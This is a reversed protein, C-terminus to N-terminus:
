EHVWTATRNPQQAPRQGPRSRGGGTPGDPIYEASAKKTKFLKGFDLGGGPPTEPSKQQAPTKRRWNSLDAASEEKAVERAKLLFQKRVADDSRIKTCIEKAEADGAKVREYLSTYAEDLKRQEAETLSAEIEDATKDADTQTARDGPKSGQKKKEEDLEKQAQNLEALIKRLESNADALEQGLKRITAASERIAKGDDGKDAAQRAIMEQADDVRKQTIALKTKLEELESEKRALLESDKTNGEKDPM